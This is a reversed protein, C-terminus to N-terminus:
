EVADDFSLDLVDGDDEIRARKVGPVDEDEPISEEERSRKSM